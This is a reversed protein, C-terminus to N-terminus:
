QYTQDSNRFHPALMEYLMVGFSYIDATHDIPVDSQRSQQECPMYAPTGAMFVGDGNDKDSVIGLDTLFAKGDGRQILVNSAKVDRHVFGERHLYHIARAIQVMIRVTAAVPLPEKTQKAQKTFASLANGDVFETLIYACDEREVFKFYRVINPYALDRLHTAERRFIAMFRENEIYEDRLLKLAYINPTNREKVKYVCAIGGSGIFETVEYTDDALLQEVQSIDLCTKQKSSM